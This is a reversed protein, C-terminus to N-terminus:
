IERIGFGVNKRNYEMEGCSIAHNSVTSPIYDSALAEEKSCMSIQSFYYLSKRVVEVAIVRM